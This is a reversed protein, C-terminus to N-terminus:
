VLKLQSGPAPRVVRRAEAQWVAISDRSVGPLVCRDDPVVAAMRKERIDHYFLDAGVFSRHTSACVAHTTGSGSFPDVVLDGPMTYLLVARRALEEPMQAPHGTREPDNSGINSISWSDSPWAGLPHGSLSGRRPGKFSRKAPNKQPTRIADANFNSPEGKSFVLVTEHRGSLRRRPTLGHPVTWVIRNQFVLGTRAIADYIAIDLPMLRDNQDRTHGVQLFLVGGEDLVRASESVIQMLWGMYFVHAMQDSSAGRGYAKGVNYPPSTVVLRACGDPLGDMFDLVDSRDTTGILSELTEMQRAHREAAREAIRMETKRAGHRRALAYIRGRSWGHRRAVEEYTM